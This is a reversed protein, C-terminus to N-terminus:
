HRTIFYIQNQTNSAVRIQIHWSSCLDSCISCLLLCSVSVYSSCYQPLFIPWRFLHHTLCYCCVNEFSQCGLGLVLSSYSYHHYSEWSLVGQQMNLILNVTRFDYIYFHVMCLYFNKLLMTKYSINKNETVFFNLGRPEKCM